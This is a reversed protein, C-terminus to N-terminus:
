QANPAEPKALRVNEYGKRKAAVEWTFSATSKGGGLEKVTFSTGTTQAVYLGNCEGTPSAFVIMPHDAGITVTELYVPDLSITAQGDVIRATGRDFFYVEASEDAYVKRIGYDRTQVVANKTGTVYMNGQIYANSGVVLNDSAMLDGSSTIDGADTSFLYGGATVTPPATGYGGTYIATTRLFGNNQLQTVLDGGFEGSFGRFIDGSGQNVVVMAADTSSVVGTFAIGDANTNEARIACADAGGGINRYVTLGDNIRVLPYATGTSGYRAIDLANDTSGDGPTLRVGKSDHTKFYVYGQTELALDYYGNGGVALVGASGPNLVSMGAAGNGQVGPVAPTGPNPYIGPYGMTGTGETGEDATLKGQLTTDGYDGSVNFTVSGSTNQVSIGGNKAASGSRVIGDAVLNNSAGIDGNTMSSVIPGVMIGGIGTSECVYLNRAVHLDHSATIDYGILSGTATLSNASLSGSITDGTANVFRTDLGALHLGDVTDANGANTAFDANGANTAFDAYGASDAYDANNARDASDAYDANNARDAGDAHDANNARDASDAHGANNARDASDAHDANNAHNANNTWLANDANAAQDARFAHDAEAASAARNADNAYNAQDAQEAWQASDASFAFPVSVLQRRPLLEEGNVTIGLYYAPQEGPDGIGGPTASGIVVSFVGKTVTVTQTEVWGGLPSGGTPSNYLAFTMTRTGDVPRNLSDSLKGQYNVLNPIETANAPGAALVGLVAILALARRM